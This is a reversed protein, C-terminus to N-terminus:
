SECHRRFTSIPRTGWWRPGTSVSSGWSDRQTSVRLSATLKPCSIREKVKGRSHCMGLAMSMYSILFTREGSTRSSFSHPASGHWQGGRRSCSHILHINFSVGCTSPWLRWLTFLQVRPFNKDKGEFHCQSAPMRLSAHVYVCIFFTDAFNGIANM